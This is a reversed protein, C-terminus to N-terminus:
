DMGLLEAAGVEPSPGAWGEDGYNFTRRGPGKAIIVEKKSTVINVFATLRRYGETSLHFRAITDISDQSMHLESPWIGYKGKFGDLAQMIRVLNGGHKVVLKSM